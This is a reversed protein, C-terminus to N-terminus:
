AYALTRWSSGDYVNVTGSTVNFIATGSAPSPLADKEENGLPEFPRTGSVAITQGETITDITGVGTITVTGSLANLFQVPVSEPTNKLSSASDVNVYIETNSIAQGVQLIYTGMVSPPTESVAGSVTPSLFLPEGITLGSFGALNGQHRVTVTQGGSVTSTACGIVEITDVSAAIAPIVNGSSDLAVVDSASLNQGAIFDQDLSNGTGTVVPNGSITLSGSFTGTVATFVKVNSIDNNLADLDGGLQPTTDEVVANLGGDGEGTIGSGDVTVTNGSASINVGNSGVFDITGTIDSGGSVTLADVDSSEVADIQTQLSGSASVFETRNAVGSVQVAAIDSANTSVNVDTAVGSAALAGLHTDIQAHTNVGINQIATHDINAETFHITSDAAHTSGSVQVAAIDSANTSVNADTAVGSAALASTDTDVYLKTTLHTDETPTVGTSVGVTGSTITWNTTSPDWQLIANKDANFILQKTGAKGDGLYFENQATGHEDGTLGRAVIQIAGTSVDSVLVTGIEQSLSPTIPASNTPIGAVADSVYLVDGEAFSSTNINELLGVQMIRGFAGDVISEITVGIAPMTDISDAKATTVLPVNDQSGSACVIRNAAITSGRVNKVLILSDRVIERKMGGDDLYKLFSFGKISENYIRITDTAPTPPEPIETFDLLNLLTTGSVVLDGVLVDTGSITGEVLFPKGPTATISGDGNDYADQLTVSSDIADIEGQLHGSVSVINADTAVGSAALADTDIIAAYSTLDPGTITITQGLTQTTLNQTGTVLVAGTVANVSDVDSAEVADIQTQLSGSANVFETRNTVVQADTAVGSAALASTDTDVYLKTALHLDETPAIGSVTATFGRSGDVLIYQTHDDDGLGALQGHDDAGARPSIPNIRWDVYDEGEDTTVIRAQVDNTYNNRTQFIVSAIAKMEESPLDGLLLSGVETTAGQRAESLLGYETQGQIVIPKFDIFNTAFVHYLVFDGNGVETQSGSDNWALRGSGTNLVSFGSVSTWRWDSGDLYWIELGTGSSVANINHDLDEDYIVGADVGFQASSNDDGSADANIANLALGEDFVTGINDHLYRHTAPAMNVGHREEMLKGKNNAADWYIFAVSATNEIINITQEHNPNYLTDLSPGDFYVIWLGETDDIAVDIGSTVTYKTGGVYYDYSDGTPAINFTRTGSAFTIASDTRNPFGNQDWVSLHDDHQTQLSGSANVFETRFGGVDITDSGSVITIGNSGTIADNEDKTYRVHGDITTTDVGSTVTIGVGGIIADSITDQDAPHPTGSITIINTGSTVVVEGAGIIADNEDKTYRLHGDITTTDVGSTVTIGVGGIIADSVTDQDAPHPTGSIVVIGVGSTVVVEGAGVIADSLDTFEEGSIVVFNSGTIVTLSGSAQILGQGPFYEAFSQTLETANETGTIVVAEFFENLEAESIVAIDEIQGDRILTRPM